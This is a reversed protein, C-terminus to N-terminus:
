IDPLYVNSRDHPVSNWWFKRNIKIHIDTGYLLKAEYRKSHELMYRFELLIDQKLYGGLFITM